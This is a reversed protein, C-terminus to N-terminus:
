LNSWYYAAVNFVSAYVCLDINHSSILDIM